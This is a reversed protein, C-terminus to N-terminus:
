PRLTVAAVPLFTRDFRAAFEGLLVAKGRKVKVKKPRGNVLVEVREGPVFMSPDLLLRFRKVSRTKVTFRGKSVFQAELRATHKEGQEAVVAAQEARTMANWSKANIRLRFVEKVPSRTELIEVWHARGEGARASRRIVREPIPNRRTKYLEPWDVKDYRFGHGLDPFEIYQADLAKVKKLLEFTLRLNAVLLPDDKAGQLDRITVAVLNEHYRINNRGGAMNLMPGGIAPVIAALRDPQRLALDWLLHGGRSVGTAYVRCEDVNFRLRAWRLAAWAAANEEKSGTFGGRGRRDSPSIVIMGLAEAVSRWPAHGGHGTGGAGHLTLLLPSPKAPSYTSPVFLEIHTNETSGLVDLDAQVDRVGAAEKGFQGFARMAALWAEFSIDLAALEKVLAARQSAPRHALRILAMDALAREDASAPAVAVLLPLCLLLFRPPM